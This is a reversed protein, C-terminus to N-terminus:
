KNVTSTVSNMATVEIELKLRADHFQAGIATL